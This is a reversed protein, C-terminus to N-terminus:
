MGLEQSGILWSWSGVAVDHLHSWVADGTKLSESSFELVELHTHSRLSLATERWPSLLPVNSLIVLAGQTTNIRRCWIHAEREM